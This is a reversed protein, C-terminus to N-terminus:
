LSRCNMGKSSSKCEDVAGERVIAPNGHTLTLTLPKLFPAVTDLEKVNIKFTFIQPTRRLSVFLAKAKGDPSTCRTHGSSAFVVCDGPSWTFTRDLGAGMGDSLGDTIHVVVDASVDFVDGNPPDTFFEGQLGIKGRLSQSGELNRTVRGRLVSVDCLSDGDLDPCAASAISGASAACAIASIALWKSPRM